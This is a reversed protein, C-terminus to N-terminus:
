RKDKIYYITIEYWDDNWNREIINIINGDSISEKTCAKLIADEVIASIDSYERAKQININRINLRSIM